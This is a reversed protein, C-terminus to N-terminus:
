VDETEGPDAQDNARTRRNPTRRRAARIRYVTGNCVACRGEVQERKRSMRHVEVVTFKRPTKCHLCYAEDPALCVKGTDRQEKVWDRYVTGRIYIHRHERKHPCGQEIHNYVTNVHMDMEEALESPRYWMDLLKRLKSAQASTLRVDAM